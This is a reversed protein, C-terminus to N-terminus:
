VFVAVFVSQSECDRTWVVSYPGNEVVNLYNISTLFINRKDRPCSYVTRDFFKGLLVCPYFEEDEIPVDIQANNNAWDWWARPCSGGDPMSSHDFGEINFLESSLHEAADKYDMGRLFSNRVTIFNKLKM